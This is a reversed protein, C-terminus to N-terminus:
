AHRQDDDPIMLALCALVFSLAGSWILIDYDM